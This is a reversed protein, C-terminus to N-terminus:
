IKPLPRVKGGQGEKPRDLFGVKVLYALYLGVREEDMRPCHSVASVPTVSGSVAVGGGSVREAAPSLAPVPGGAQPPGYLRTLLAQTNRDDLQPAKTSSPLDDLVYHLLPFLANDTQRLTFEMLRDRWDIYQLTACQWGYRPLCQLLESFRFRYPHYVHLVNVGSGAGSAPTVPLVGGGGGSTSLSLAPPSTFAFASTIAPSKLPNSLQSFTQQAELAGAVVVRAVYDVPCANIVNQMSPVSGMQACGKCLRWIFDSTNSVGTRSHGLIYGPRVVSAALGRRRAEFVLRESVFKSQGYGGSLGKAAGELDDGESVGGAGRSQVVEDSLRQYHPTDLVSTSSVFCFRKSHHAGALALAWATSLVNAAKLVSYPYLWHVLAGNHVVVDVSAALEDFREPSLGLRESALDGLVAEVRGDTVWEARWVGYGEGVRQLRALGDAQDKGRVLCVVRAVNSLSLLHALVFMGLFGTAGTLFVSLSERAPPLPPYQAQLHQAVLLPVDAAYDVVEAKSEEDGEKGVRATSGSVEIMEGANLREVERAMGRITGGGPAFVLGLPVDVAMARRMEFILRTALISHGGVDFFNDDVPIYAPASPLLSRWIDHITRETPSMAPLDLSSRRPATTTSPTLLATDPFPLANKDIKGNPTLPMRRLVVFVSPVAYTPLKAKLYDRIDRILRRYRRRSFVAKGVNADALDTDDEEEDASSMFPHLEQNAIPVFYSVLTQEENKDRRVLTVNERILPHQSLHTDIEGLEIRFGRIKVQDDARGICEVCGDPLYRGLDGTRYVRDRKGRWYDRWTDNSGSQVIKIQAKVQAIQGIVKEKIQAQLSLQHQILFKKQILVQMAQDSTPVVTTSAQVDLLQQSLSAIQQEVHTQQQHLRQLLQQLSSLSSITLAPMGTAQALSLSLPTLPIATAQSNEYPLAVFWNAVFKESTAEPLRLYGEALGGARVYIEGVEGVGCLLHRQHRNVVILQVNVMGRGAPIIDKTSGLFAPHSSIPPLTYYSVARQTETTGYMNIVSLNPAIKQMRSADRKTLIDGVFFAHHLSPVTVQAHSSLLQGMAPTLHTVTVASGRMWEALRGPVGIDEATPVHLEAGFFLPTFIDRQIPDHAIGSLMTFRDTEGLGFEQAMWPYYHTLSFHRGQVGKPIGTSGSTFSLTGISDPGIVVGVDDTAQGRVCDLVDADVQDTHPMGGELYGDDNLELSPVECVLKLESSIYDRVSSPVLGAKSLVILGKPQAVQLYISQRNPPYAPDIVSFTAGAKLVGMIAVVLDVGRHAYITVVDERMVGQKLLYHAVINSAEHMQRYTFVRTKMPAAAAGDSDDADSAGHGEDKHEVVCM